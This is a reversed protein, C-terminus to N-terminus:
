AFNFDKLDNMCSGVQKVFLIGKSDVGESLCCTIDEKFGTGVMSVADVSLM